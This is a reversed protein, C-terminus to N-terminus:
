KTKSNPLNEMNLLQQHQLIKKVFQIYLQAIFSFLSCKDRKFSLCFRSLNHRKVALYLCLDHLCSILISENAGNELGM